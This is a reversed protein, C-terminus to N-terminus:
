GDSQTGDRDFQYAIAQFSDHVRHHSVLRIDLGAHEVVALARVMADICEDANGFARGGVSTLLVINSV